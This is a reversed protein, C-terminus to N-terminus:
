SENFLRSKKDNRKNKVRKSSSNDANFKEEENRILVIIDYINNILELAFPTKTENTLNLMTINKLSYYMFAADLLNSPDMENFSRCFLVIFKNIDETTIDKDDKTLPLSSTLANIMSRCDPMKFKSRSNKLNFEDCFREADDYDRRILKRTRANSLYHERLADLTYARDFREKIQGLLEAKEPETDKIKEIIEPIKEEMVYKTHESYLDSISPIQLAEDLAKEFNIFMDDIEAQSIFGDLFMKTMSNYETFPIHQEMAVGRINKKITEPLRSYVNPLSKNKRYEALLMCFEVMEDEPLDFLESVQEKASAIVDEDSPGDYDEADFISVNAEKLGDHKDGALLEEYSSDLSINKIEESFGEDNSEDEIESTDQISERMNLVEEPTNEEATKFIEKMMEAPIESPAFRNDNIPM